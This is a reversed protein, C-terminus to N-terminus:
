RRFASHSAVSGAQQRNKLGQYAGFVFVKNKVVPGGGAAGYQNQRQTPRVTQFFSRANLKDNRLFEWASGHFDNSGAKSVVSINGGPNRGFEPAFNHTQIRVEQVADPPPYNMGTNRSPNNFYAGNFTFQNMNARGGNVNMTPGGRSDSLDQPANVGLVGPLIRTLAMVNRGNIPLDVVRQDDILGSLAPSTTNVLTATSSVTVETEMAGLKMQVDLRLNEGVTLRVDKQIQKQFGSAEASIEYTGPPMALLNFFGEANSQTSRTLQQEVSKATLTAGPVAAGSPDKVYGSVSGTVQAQVPVVAVSFLVWLLLM